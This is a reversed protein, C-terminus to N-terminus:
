IYENDRFIILPIRLAYGRNPNIERHCVYLPNTISKHMSPNCRRGKVSPWEEPLKLGFISGDERYIYLIYHVVYMGYLTYINTRLLCIKIVYM